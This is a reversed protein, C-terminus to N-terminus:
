GLTCIQEGIVDVIQTIQTKSIILPPSLCINDGAQRVFVGAEYCGLFVQAAQAPSQLQIGAILGLARVDIVSSFSSLQMLSEIWFRELTKARTLLGEQQYIDLAALAAACAVPHGSYTYGHFFEITNESAGNVVADHLADSAFVAGMPISGNSLGKASTILDAKIEFRSAAFASGLRGFGTIVEDLILLVGHRATINRVKELYGKPPLIVGGAGAVPEVIVAAVNGAGHHQILAELEDAKDAGNEPLGYSFANETLDLTHALHDVRPLLDGFGTKNSALGGVSIGGYNVGHYGKDRGILVKREPEGRAGHYAIAMKLATEVAESGSNTFFVKNMHSPAIDALREALEFALPHGMNFSHAFDLKSLQQSVAQTIGERGHGLNVCWLGATGDLVERGETTTYHMGRASEFLRPSKKFQRNPTFPMWYSDLNQSM